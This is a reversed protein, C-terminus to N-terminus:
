GGAVPPIFVIVDNAKLQTQWDQFENNIAVQLFKSSLSFKHAIALEDYLDLATAANTLCTEEALGAQEKLLAYYQVRVPLKKDDSM